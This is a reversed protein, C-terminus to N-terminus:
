TFSLEASAREELRDSTHVPQVGSRRIYYLVVIRDGCIVPEQMLTVRYRGSQEFFHQCKLFADMSDPHPALSSALRFEVSFIHRNQGAGAVVCIGPFPVVVVLDQIPDLVTSRVPRPSRDQSTQEHGLRPFSHSHKVDTNYDRIFINDNDWM